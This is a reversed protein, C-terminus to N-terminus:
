AGKDEGPRPGGDDLGTTMAAHGDGSHSHGSGVGLTASSTKRYIYGERSMREGQVVAAGAVRSDDNRVLARSKSARERM